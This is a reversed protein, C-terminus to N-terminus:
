APWVLAPLDPEIDSFSTPMPRTGSQVAGLITYLTAWTADRANVAAQGEAAFRPVGSSAYTCASLIGDYNRTAAFADLRTQTATIIAAQLAKGQAAKISAVSAALLAPDVVLTDGSRVMAGLTAAPMPGDIREDWLVRTADFYGGSDSVEILEQKGTPSNVLLRNM